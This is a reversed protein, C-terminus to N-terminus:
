PRKASTDSAQELRHVRGAALGTWERATRDPWRVIVRDAAAATGLGVTVTLESQSLYGRAGSVSRRLVAEGVHIEVTAGIADRNSRQGDGVLVLRLWNNGTRNDNRFLRAPGGNETVVVDLDGDGDYDLYACGRGVLPRYLESGIAAEPVLAFLGGEARGTNWFLQAPQRYAQTPQSAAIDPELHGDCTFLDNRGDLDYDFFFAGFKMPGRSPGALGEVEARDRFLLPKTRALTLLTDPENAFNAIVAAPQDPRIQAYDIGMGGRARGDAYAVNATLGIEEFKRSDGAPVNHFFFNRVTDNAVLLDPWGDGDPDCVVVGLSKGSPQRLRGLGTPESVEVGARASVDAFTGDGNNRYLACNSGAFQTPPVYARGVGPLVANIGLDLAPSWAVYHCVFLDLRGDGDYDLWAASSPFPIPREWRAFETASISPWTSAGGVSARNTIDVFRRGGPGAENHFLRSGGVASIFLDPFGDNDYDGVAAGMGYLSVDLGAAGTVDAFTGDGTNHYLASTTREGAQGPWSRSNVFFLDPRGDADYDLVAVGAGMTEPLLKQGIAGNVHRFHLGAQETVETFRVAPFSADSPAPPTTFLRLAALLAAGGLLAVLLPLWRRSLRAPM